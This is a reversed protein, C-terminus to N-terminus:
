GGHLISHAKIILYVDGGRALALKHVARATLKAKWLEGGARVHVLSQAGAPELAEIQGPLINQASIGEPRLTALLIDESRVAVREPGPQGPAAAVALICGAPTQVSLTGDEQELVQVDFVNEAGLAHLAGFASASAFVGRPDGQQVVRGEELVLVHQALALVELPDHTVILMPVGTQQPLRQLFPLVRSRLPRDISALPEDLLLFSPRSALARAIAVRQREGGSLLRAPRDLLPAIELAEVAADIAARGRRAAEAFQLNQRASMHPFLAGDQPVWGIGRAQPPLGALECDRLCARGRVQPRLGALAELITTKGSGSAGFLAACPADWSAAAQLRFGPYDARLEFANM